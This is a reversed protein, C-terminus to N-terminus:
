GKDFNCRSNRTPYWYLGTVFVINAFVPVLFSTILYSVVGSKTDFPCDNRQQMPTEDFFEKSISFARAIDQQPIGHDVLYFFGSTHAASLLRAALTPADWSLSIVPLEDVSATM